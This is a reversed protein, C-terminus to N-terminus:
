EKQVEVLEECNRSRWNNSCKNVQNRRVKGMEQKLHNFIVCSSDNLSLFALSTLYFHSINKNCRTEKNLTFASFVKTFLSFNPFHSFNRNQSKAKCPRNENIPFNICNIKYIVNDFSCRLCIM